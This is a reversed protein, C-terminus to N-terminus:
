FIPLQKVLSDLTAIIFDETEVLALRLELSVVFLLNGGEGVLELSKTDSLLFPVIAMSRRRMVM